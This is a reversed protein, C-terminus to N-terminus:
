LQVKVEVYLPDLNPFNSHNISWPRPDWSQFCTFNLCTTADSYPLRSRLGKERPWFPRRDLTFTPSTAPPANNLFEACAGIAMPRLRLLLLVGRELFFCLHPFFIILLKYHHALRVTEWKPRTGPRSRPVSMTVLPAM